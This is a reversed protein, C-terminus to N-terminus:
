RSKTETNTDHSCDEKRIVRRSLVWGGSARVIATVLNQYEERREEILIQEESFSWDETPLWSTEPRLSGKDKYGRRYVAVRPKQHRLIKLHVQDLVKNIKEPNLINGFFDHTGHSFIFSAIVYDLVQRSVLSARLEPFLNHRELYLEIEYRVYDEFEEFYDSYWSIIILILLDRYKKSFKVGDYDLQTTELTPSVFVSTRRDLSKQIRGSIQSKLSEFVETSIVSLHKM